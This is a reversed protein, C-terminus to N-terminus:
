SEVRCNTFRYSTKSTFSSYHEKRASITLIGDKVAANSDTYFQQENNGWGNTIYNGNADLKWNGLEYSWKSDDLSEGSFEDSWVLHQENDSLVLKQKMLCLDFVDLINDNYFDAATWDNLKTDPVSLLWRQFIVVDSINFKGDKNVDGDASDSTHTHIIDEYASAHASTTGLMALSVAFTIIKKYNKM